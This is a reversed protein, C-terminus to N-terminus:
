STTTVLAEAQARLQVARGAGQSLLMAEAAVEDLVEDTAPVVIRGDIVYPQDRLASGDWDSFEVMCGMNRRGVMARTLQGPLDVPWGNLLV